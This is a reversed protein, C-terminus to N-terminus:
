STLCVYPKIELNTRHKSIIKKATYLLVFICQALRCSTEASMWSINCLQPLATNTQLCGVATIPCKAHFVYM